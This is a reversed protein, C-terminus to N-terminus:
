AHSFSASAAISLAQVGVPDRELRDQRQAIRRILATMCQRLTDPTRYPRDQRTARRQQTPMDLRTKFAMDFPDPVIGTAM